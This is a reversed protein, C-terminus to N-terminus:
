YLWYFWGYIQVCFVNVKGIIGVTSWVLRRDNDISLFCMWTCDFGFRQCYGERCRLSQPYTSTSDKVDCFGLRHQEQCMFRGMCFAHASTHTEWLIRNSVCSLRQANNHNNVLCRRRETPWAGNNVGGGVMWQPSAREFVDDAETFLEDNILRLDRTLSATDRFVCISTSVARSRNHSYVDRVHLCTVETTMSLPWCLRVPCYLKHGLWM